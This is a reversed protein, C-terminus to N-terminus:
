DKKSGRTPIEVGADRLVLRMTAYSIPPGLDRHFAKLNHIPSAQRAAELLASRWDKKPAFSRGAGALFQKLTERSRRFGLGKM